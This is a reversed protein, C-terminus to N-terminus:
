FDFDFDFDIAIKLPSTEGESWLFHAFGMKKEAVGEHPLVRGLPASNDRGAVGRDTPRSDGEALYVRQRL